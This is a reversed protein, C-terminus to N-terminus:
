MAVSWTWRASLEPDCSRPPGKEVFCRHGLAKGEEELSCSFWLHRLETRYIHVSGSQTEQWIPSFVGETELSGVGPLQSFM